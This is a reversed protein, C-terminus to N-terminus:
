KWFIIYLSVYNYYLFLMLVVEENKDSPLLGSHAEWTTSTTFFRTTVAPANSIHTWDRPWSSGRSSPMVIWEMVRAQLIGHVSSGPWSHDMPDCLTLCSRLSKAAATWQIRLGCKYQPTSVHTVLEINVKQPVALSNELHSGQKGNGGAPSSLELKEM